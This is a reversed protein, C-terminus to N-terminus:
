QCLFIRLWKMTIGANAVSATFMTDTRQYAGKGHISTDLVSSVSLTDHALFSLVLDQDQVCWTGLLSKLAPAGQMTSQFLACLSIAAFMIRIM